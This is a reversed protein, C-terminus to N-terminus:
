KRPWKKSECVFGLIIGGFGCLLLLGLLIWGLIPLEMRGIQIAVFAIIVIGMWRTTKKDNSTM